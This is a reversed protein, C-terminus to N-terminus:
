APRHAEVPSKSRLDAQRRAWVDTLELQARLEAEVASAYRELYPELLGPVRLALALDAKVLPRVIWFPGPATINRRAAPTRRTPVRAPDPPKEGQFLASTLHHRHASPRSARHAADVDAARDATWGRLAALLAGAQPTTSAQQMADWATFDEILRDLRGTIEGAGGSVDVECYFLLGARLAPRAFRCLARAGPTAPGAVVEEIFVAYRAAADTGAGPRLM